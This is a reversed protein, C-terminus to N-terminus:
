PVIALVDVDFVTWANPPISGDASGTTGYGLSPPIILRRLGGVRAGPIGPVFGEIVSGAALTLTARGTQVATGKSDTGRPDYLWLSYQVDVKQGAGVVAGTGVRVDTVVMIAPGVFAISQTPSDTSNCSVASAGALVVALGRSFRKLMTMTPGRTRRRGCTRRSCANACACTRRRSRWSSMM